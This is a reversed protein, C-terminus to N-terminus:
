DIVPERVHKFYDRDGKAGPVQFRIRGPIRHVVHAQHKM